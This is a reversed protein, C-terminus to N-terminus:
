YILFFLQTKEKEYVGIKGERTLWGIALYLNAEKIKLEDKLEKISCEGRLDVYQWVIGANMGIENKLM